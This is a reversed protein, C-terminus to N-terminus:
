IEKRIKALESGGQARFVIERSGWFNLVLLEEVGEKLAERSRKLKSQPREDLDQKLAPIGKVGKESGSCQNGEGGVGKPLLGNSVRGTNRNIGRRSKCRGGGKVVGTCTVDWEAASTTKVDQRKEKRAGKAQSVM